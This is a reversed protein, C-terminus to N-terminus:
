CPFIKKKQGVNLPLQYLRKRGIPKPPQTVVAAINSLKQLVLVSDSTSGFFLINM